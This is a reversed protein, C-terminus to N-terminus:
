VKERWFSFYSINFYKLRRTQIGVETALGLPKPGPAQSPGGLLNQLVTQPEPPAKLSIQLSKETVWGRGRWGGCAM